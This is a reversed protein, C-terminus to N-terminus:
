SPIWLKLWHRVVFVTLAGTTMFTLVALLSRLSFRSLGCVGHGSTCGGGLRTGFGVLLGAAALPPLPLQSVSVRSTFLRFGVGAGFLGLLFLVRVWRELGQNQFM